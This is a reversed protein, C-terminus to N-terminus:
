FRIKFGAFNISEVFLLGYYTKIAIGIGCLNIMFYRTLVVDQMDADIFEILLLNFPYAHQQEIIQRVIAGQCFFLLAQLLNLFKERKLKGQLGNIFKLKIGVM